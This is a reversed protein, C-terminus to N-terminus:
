SAYSLYDIDIVRTEHEIRIIHTGAALGTQEFLLQGTAAPGNVNVTEVLENDVYVKATGFNIDNQGYWRIATGTFTFEVSAGADSTYRATEEYFASNSDNQWSGTYVLLPNRDDVSQFEPEPAPPTDDTAYALYDIDIAQPTTNVIRLTHEGAPLGTKKFILKGTGPEGYTYASEIFEGDIYVNTIGFTDASTQGYWQVATGNFTFEAAADIETTYRANGEYFAENHDDHWTGTYVIRESFADVKEYVLEPIAPMYAFWDVDIVKTKCVIKITHVAPALDVAEFLMAGTIMSGNANVTKVLEGDLYVDATGFNSDKQGYWRIKTGAFTFEVSSGATNTYRATGDRFSSNSDDRWTGTYVLSEDRDDVLTLGWDPDIVSPDDPTTIEVAKVLLSSSFQNNFIASGGMLNTAVIRDNVYDVIRYMKDPDLGKLEISPYGTPRYKSGDRYFAYFMVGDKEVVYTEYPDFGYSYLDGIFRGKHLQVDNAIDLWREYEAQSFGPAGETSKEIMVSGTGVATDYWISNHDTSVPFYDGMLAKYAKARRRTQDKSTPDATIVQTMYQLSYYDLPTGCNCLLNFADPDNAVMAEYATRYLEAQKETSEEPYPHNHSADYCKPMSWVYDGKFGDFGWVNMAQNIFAVQSAIAGESTPCLAYGLSTVPKGGCGVLRATSGDQNKVFYEPHERYLRSNTGADCPRWWLLASMGRAHIAETLRIMDADGNPFRSASLGWDGCSNYWGDDLTIQQVGAAQLEDLYSIIKDVTWNFGWGWADWRLEYSRDAVNTPMVLGLYEMANKYGRLGLFYDGKHVTIFSQGVAASNGATITKGPWKISVQASDATEQVPTHVERRTASADGVTIGGDAAYIDSVPISAATYDQINERTFMESDTLSIKQLTDYYHMPGEGGGNYSWIRDEAGFLEFENEVFWTATVDTSGAQYTTTTYVMGVEADSTELVYTRTLGTSASQSVITMRDGSGMLGTINNEVVCSVHAFDQVAQGGIIPYGMDSPKSMQIATGGEMRYLTLADGDYSVQVGNGSITNVNTTEAAISATPLLQLCIVTSLLLSALKKIRMKIERGINYM